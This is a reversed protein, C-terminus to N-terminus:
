RPPSEPYLAWLEPAPVYRKNKMHKPLKQQMFSIWISYTSGQRKNAANRTNLKTNQATGRYSVSIVDDDHWGM